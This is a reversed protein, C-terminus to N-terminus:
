QDLREFCALTCLGRTPRVHRGALLACCRLVVPLRGALVHRMRKRVAVTCNCRRGCWWRRLQFLDEAGNAVASSPRDNRCRFWCARWWGQQGVRAHMGALSAALCEAGLLLRCCLAQLLSALPRWRM